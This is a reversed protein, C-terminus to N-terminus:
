KKGGLQELLARIEPSAMLSSLADKAEDYNGQAASSMATNFNIGDQQQLLRILQQGAPSNALRMADQMSFNQPINANKDM